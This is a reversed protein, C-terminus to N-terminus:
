RGIGVGLLFDGRDSAASYALGCTDKKKEEKEARWMGSLYINTSHNQDETPESVRLTHEYKKHRYSADM